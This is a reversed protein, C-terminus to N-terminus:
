ASRRMVPSPAVGGVPTNVLLLSDHLLPESPDNPWETPWSEDVICPILFETELRTGEKMDDKSPECPQGTPIGLM